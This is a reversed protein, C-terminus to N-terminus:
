CSPAAHGHYLIIQQAHWHQLVALILKQLHGLVLSAQNQYEELFMTDTIMGLLAMSHSQLGGPYM